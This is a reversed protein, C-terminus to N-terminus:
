EVTVIQRSAWQKLLRKQKLLTEYYERAAPDYHVFARVKAADEPKLANDVLAQIEYINVIHDIMEFKQYVAAGRWLNGLFKIKKM